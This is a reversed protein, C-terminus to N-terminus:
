GLAELRRRLEVGALRTSGTNTTNASVKWRGYRQGVPTECVRQGTANDVVLPADVFLMAPQTGAHSEIWAVTEELGRTWGADLVRGDQGLVAVGSENPSRGARGNSWALDIGLFRWVAM